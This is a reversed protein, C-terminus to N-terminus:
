RHIYAGGVRANLLLVTDAIIHTLGTHSRYPVGTIGRFLM